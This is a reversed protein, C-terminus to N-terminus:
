FNISPVIWSTEFFLGHRRRDEIINQDELNFEQVKYIHGSGTYREMLLYSCYITNAKYGPYNSAVVLTCNNAGIFLSQDGLNEVQICQFEGNSLELKYVYYPKDYDDMSGYVILLDGKSTEVFYSNFPFKWSINPVIEEKIKIWVHDIELSMIRGNSSVGFILKDYFTIDELTGLDSYRDIYTWFEDGLKLHALAGKNFRNSYNVLVEFSGLSPDRSLVVKGLQECRGGRKLPPLDITKGSLPNLVVFQSRIKEFVLWGHSCGYCIM